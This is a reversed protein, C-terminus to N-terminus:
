DPDVMVGSRASSTLISRRPPHTLVANPSAELARPAQAHLLPALEALAQEAKPGARNTLLLLAQDHQPEVGGTRVRAM